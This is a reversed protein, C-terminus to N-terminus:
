RLGSLMKAFLLHLDRSEPTSHNMEEYFNEFYAGTTGIIGCRHGCANLIGAIMFSTSTKGKTGTIGIINLKDCACGYFHKSVIALARRANKVLIFVIGDYKEKESDYADKNECIIVCAGKEIASQIYLHGDTKVGTIAVFVHNKEVFRSDFSVGTIETNCNKTCGECTLNASESLYNQALEGELCTFLDNIIM